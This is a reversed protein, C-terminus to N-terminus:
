IFVIDLRSAFVSREVDDQVSIFYSRDQNPSELLVPNGSKPVSLNWMINWM